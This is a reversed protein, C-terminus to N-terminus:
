RSRQQPTRRRFRSEMAKAEELDIAKDGNTDARDLMQQMQIPLEDRSVKGDRNQDFGM